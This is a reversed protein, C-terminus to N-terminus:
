FLLFCYCSGESYSYERCSGEREGLKQNKERGEVQLVSGASGPGGDDEM